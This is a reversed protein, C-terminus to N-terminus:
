FIAFYNLFTKNYYLSEFNRSQCIVTRCQFAQPPGQRRSRLVRFTRLDNDDASLWPACCVLRVNRIWCYLITIEKIQQFFGSSNPGYIINLRTFLRKGGMRLILFEPCIQQVVQFLYSILKMFGIICTLVNTKNILGAINQHMIYLNKNNYFFSALSDIHTELEFRQPAWAACQVLTHLATDPADCQRCDPSPLCGVTRYLYKDFCGHGTLIQTTRFTLTGSTRNVWETLQPRIADVTYGGYAAPNDLEQSWVAIMSATERKRIAEIDVQCFTLSRALADQRTRRVELSDILQKSFFLLFFFNKIVTAFGPCEYVTYDCEGIRAVEEVIMEPTVSDDLGTLRIEARKVPRSVEAVGTLAGQLLGAVRDALAASEAGPPFELMRSDNFARIVRLGRKLGLAVVDVVGWENLLDGTLENDSPWGSRWLKQMFIKATVIVPAIWGMPDYQKAIDSLVKVKTIPLSLEPLNVTYEFNDTDRNWRIGLVKVTNDSKIDLTKEDSKSKQNIFNMFKDSNSNWKQLQFGGSNLLQNMQKYIDIAENDTECNTMMDDVYFDQKTIKAAIPFKNQEEEALRQLSKVALYPACATGFTVTQLEYHGLPEKLNYKEETRTLKKRIINPENELEWFKKLVNDERVQVHLSLMKEGASASRSVKGSIVWGFITNQAILYGQPLKIVDSLLIEAYVEAGLLIDIKGPSTYGADALPLKKIELWDPSQVENSPIRSTLSKLVFATVNISYQPNNNGIEKKNAFNAMIDIEDTLKTSSTPEGLLTHKSELNIATGQNKEKDFHLLSHHRRGCRRCGTSQRCQNVSHTPALCHYCLRKSQVFDNREKQTQKGFQTCNFLLHSSGCLPCQKSAVQSVTGRDTKTEHMATHYVKPKTIIKQRSPTHRMTSGGDIMELTRFRSELFQSLESWTPLSDANVNNIHM